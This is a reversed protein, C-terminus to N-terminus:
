LKTTFMNIHIETYPRKRLLKTSNPYFECVMFHARKLTCDLLKQINVLGQLWGWMYSWLVDIEGLLFGTGM